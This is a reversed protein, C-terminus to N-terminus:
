KSLTEDTILCAIGFDALCVKRGGDIKNSSKLLVNEPKIDRHVINKHHMDAVAFLMQQM